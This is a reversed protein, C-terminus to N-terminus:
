HINQNVRIQPCQHRHLVKVGDQEVLPREVPFINRVFLFSFGPLPLNLEDSCSIGATGGFPNPDASQSVIYMDIYGNTCLATRLSKLRRATNIFM